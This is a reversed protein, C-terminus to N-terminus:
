IAKNDLEVLVKKIDSWVQKKVNVLDDGKKRLLYAPHFTSITPIGEPINFWKGRERTIKFGEHIICNSACSGLCLIVKPKVKQIERDLHMRCMKVEDAQPHRNGPPRCKIVNTIYVNKRSLKAANLIKDLLRGARGVFPTGQKDEEVGPAEGVIMLSSSMNGEGNVINVRTKHLRCLKCDDM